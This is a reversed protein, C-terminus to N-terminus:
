FPTKAMCQDLFQKWLQFDIIIDVKLTKMLLIIILIKIISALGVNKHLPWIRLRSISLNNRQNKGIEVCYARLIPASTKKKLIM